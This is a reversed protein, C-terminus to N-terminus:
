LLAALEKNDEIIVLKKQIILGVYLSTRNSDPEPALRPSIRGNSMSKVFEVLNSWNEGEFLRKNLRLYTFAALGNGPESRSTEVVQAYAGADYRELANEGALEVGAEKTAMKVQRVLGEPSAHEPQEGDKMEMCTFNLVVEHKHFMHAIPVYGDRNRTNYYGATLEAAHSRTRYHWHIGAVKGSLKAGTGQFITAASGLIRHGHELLKASYWHLFFHGYDTKWTGERRFFGTDEPFQNYIGSDHPGTTGWHKKGAAEACAELSARMYQKVFIYEM